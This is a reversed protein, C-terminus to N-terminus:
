GGIKAGKALELGLEMGVRVGFEYEMSLIAVFQEVPFERKGLRQACETILAQPDTWMKEDAQEAESLLGMGIALTHATEYIAAGALATEELHLADTRFAQEEGTESRQLHRNATEIIRTHDIRDSM